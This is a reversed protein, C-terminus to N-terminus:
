ASDPSVNLVDTCSSDGCAEDTLHDVIICDNGSLWVM